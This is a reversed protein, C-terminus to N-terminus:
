KDSRSKLFGFILLILSVIVSLYMLMPIFQLTEDETFSSYVATFMTAFAKVGNVIRNSQTILGGNELLDNKNEDFLSYQETLDISPMSYTEGDDFLKSNQEDLRSNQEKQGDIIEQNQSEQVANSNYANVYVESFNILAGSSIAFMFVLYQEGNYTFNVDIGGQLQEVTSTSSDFLLTGNLVEECSNCLYIDFITSEVSTITGIIFQLRYANGSIWSSTLRYPIYLSTTSDGNYINTSKDSLVRLVIGSTKVYSPLDGLSFTDVTKWTEVAFSPVAMSMVIVIVLVASFVVKIKRSSTRLLNM